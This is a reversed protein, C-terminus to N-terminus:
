SSCLGMHRMTVDVVTKCDPCRYDQLVLNPPPPNEALAGRLWFIAPPRLNIPITRKGNCACQVQLLMKPGEYRPGDGPPTLTNPDPVSVM